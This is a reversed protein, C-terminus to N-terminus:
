QFRGRWLTGTKRRDGLAFEMLLLLWACAVFGQFQEDFQTFEQATLRKKEMGAIEAQIDNLEREGPSARFYKGGTERAIDQLTGQDLRSMVVNGSEDKKFGQRRGSEDLLPIPTGKLSGIGVTYIVVGAQAASRAEKVPDGSHGEGDTILILVKHRDDQDDYMRTAKQIADGLATGQVPVIGPDIAELFMKAAGYDLTLPCQIFAEGAFAVLGVRDGQLLDILSLIAHRAKSLRNPQIDEALMSSSVDLAVVVDQGEREVMELRSGFQPRALAVILLCLAVLLLGTKAWRRKRDATPALRKWMGNGAFRNLARGRQRWAIWALLALLPITTLWYLNHAAAFRFM